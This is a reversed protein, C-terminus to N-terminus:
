WFSPKVNTGYQITCDACGKSFTYVLWRMAVDPGFFIMPRPPAVYYSFYPCGETVNITKVHHDSRNIFMRKEKVSSAAFYGLAKATGDCCTINGYVPVPIKSYIGGPNENIDKLLKWYHYLDADISYQKVLISYRIHLRADGPGISQIVAGKLEDAPKELTSAVVISASPKTAWCIKKDDIQKVTVLDSLSLKNSPDHYVRVPDAVMNVEFTEEFKWRWYKAKGEADHADVLINLWTDEYAVDQTIRPHKVEEFYLSDIDPVEQMLVPPSTYQRGDEPTTITLTYSKGPIGKLNKEASEYVGKPDGYLQYLRGDDDIVSVDANLVPEPTSLDNIPVTTTLKVSFPGEQDTIQGEVALLPKSDNANLHPTFPSVCSEALALLSLVLGSCFIKYKLTM